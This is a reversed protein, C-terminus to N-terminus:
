RWANAFLKFLWVVLSGFAVLLLILIAITTTHSLWESMTTSVGMITYTYSNLNTGYLSAVWDYIIQYM